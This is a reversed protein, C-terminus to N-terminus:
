CSTKLYLRSGHGEQPLLESGRDNIKPLLRNFIYQAVQKPGELGGRGFVGTPASGYVWVAWSLGRSSCRRQCPVLLPWLRPATARCGAELVAGPTQLMVYGLRQVSKSAVNHFMKETRTLQPDPAWIRQISMWWALLWTIKSWAMICLLVALLRLVAKAEM